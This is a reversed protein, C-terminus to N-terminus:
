RSYFAIQYYFCFKFAM